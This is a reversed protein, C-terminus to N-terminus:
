FVRRGMVRKPPPPLSELPHGPKLKRLPESPTRSFAWLGAHGAPRPEETAAENRQRRGLRVTVVGGHGRHWAGVPVPCARRLRCGACGAAIAEEEGEGEDRTRM